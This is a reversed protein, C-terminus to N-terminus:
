ALPKKKPIGDPRPYKDDLKAVKKFVLLCREEGTPLQYDHSSEHKLVVESQAFESSALEEQYDQSKWALFYGGEKVFSSAYELLVPLPAVARALVFDFMERLDRDRGLDEFRGIEFDVNKLGLEDAVEKLADVKKARADVLVFHHDELEIALPLGPIGGGTGLDMVELPGEGSVHDLAALADPIHKDLLLERDRTSFLNLTESKAKLHQALKQQNM